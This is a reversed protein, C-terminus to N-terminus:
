QKEDGNKQQKSMKMEYMIKKIFSNIDELCGKSFVCDEVPFFCYQRWRAYFKIKGLMTSAEKTYVVYDKTKKVSKIPKADELVDIWEYRDKWISKQSM